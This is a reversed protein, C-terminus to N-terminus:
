QANNRFKVLPKVRHACPCSPYPCLRETPSAGPSIGGPSTGRRHGVSGAVTVCRDAPPLWVQESLV